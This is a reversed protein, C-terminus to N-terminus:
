AKQSDVREMMRRYRVDVRDLAGHLEGLTIAEMSKGLNALEQALMFQAHGNMEVANACTQIKELMVLVFIDDVEIVM